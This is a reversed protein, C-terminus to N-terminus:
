RLILVLIRKKESFVVYIGEEVREEEGKVRKSYHFM